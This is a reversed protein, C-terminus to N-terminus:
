YQFRRSNHELKTEQAMPPACVKGLVCCLSVQVIIVILLIVNRSNGGNKLRRNYDGFQTMSKKVKGKKVNDKM